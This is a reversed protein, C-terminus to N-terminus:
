RSSRVRREGTLHWGIYSPRRWRSSDDTVWNGDAYEKLMEERRIGAFGALILFPVLDPV